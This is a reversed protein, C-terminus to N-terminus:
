GRKSLGTVISQLRDIAERSSTDLAELEAKAELLAAQEAYALERALYPGSFIGIITGRDSLMVRYYVEVANPARGVLLFKGPVRDPPCSFLFCRRGDLKTEEIGGCTFFSKSGLDLALTLRTKRGEAPPYIWLNVAVIDGGIIHTATEADAYNAALSLGEAEIAHERSRNAERQESASSEVAKRTQRLEERQLRLEERQMGLQVILGAFALGTFLASVAGFRDGFAGEEGDVAVMDPLLAGVVFWVALLGLGWFIWM